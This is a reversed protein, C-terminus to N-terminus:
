NLKIIDYGKKLSEKATKPDRKVWDLTLIAAIPNMSYETVLVKYSIGEVIVDPQEGNEWWNMFAIFLDPSIENIKTWIMKASSITYGFEEILRQISKQDNM